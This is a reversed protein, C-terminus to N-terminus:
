KKKSNVVVMLLSGLGAIVIPSYKLLDAYVRRDHTRSEYDEKRRMQDLERRHEEMLRDRKLRDEERRIEAKRLEDEHTHQALEEDRARQRMKAEHEIQRAEATMERQQRDDLAKPSGLTAAEEVSNYLNFREKAQDFTFYLSRAAASLGSDSVAGSSVLYVGDALQSDKIPRITFVEGGMNIFKRGYRGHNDVITVRYHFGNVDRIAPDNQLILYRMGRTSFPHHPVYDGQLTSVVLDLQTLYFSGQNDNLDNTTIVYDVAIELPMRGFSQVSDQLAASLARCEDTWQHEPDSLLDLADVNVDRKFAFRSRIVFDRTARQGLIPPVTFCLGNRFVITVPRGMGNYFTLWHNLLSDGRVENLAANKRTVRAVEHPVAPQRQEDNM